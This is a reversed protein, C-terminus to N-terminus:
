RGRSNKDKNEESKDKKDKDSNSGNSKSNNKDNNSSGNKQSTGKKTEDKKEKGVEKNWYNGKKDTSPQNKTSTPKPAQKDESKQEKKNDKSEKDDKSAKNEKNDRSNKNDKNEKTDKNEKEDKRVEKKENGIAKLLDRVPTDKYENVKAEPKVEQLREILVLKGPSIDMQRAEDRREITVKEVLVDSKVGSTEIKDKAAEQVKKEVEQAKSEDKSSVTLMVANTVEEKMYGKESAQKIIEEVAFNVPKNKFSQDELVKAGDENIAEVKLIRDYRNAVIEVSPNIDVDIYSYPTYYSYAGYGIGISFVFVAAAAVARMVFRYPLTRKKENLDIEVGVQLPSKDRVKIFQGDKSLVIADRGKIDVVVAKM